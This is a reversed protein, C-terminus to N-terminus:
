WMDEWRMCPLPIAQGYGWPRYHYAVHRLCEAESAMGREPGQPGPEGEEPFAHLSGEARGKEEDPMATENRKRRM